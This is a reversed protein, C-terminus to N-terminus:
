NILTHPTLILMCKLKECYMHTFLLMTFMKMVSTHVKSRLKNFIEVYMLLYQYIRGINETWKLEDDIVQGLYRCSKVKKTIVGDLEVDFHVNSDSKHPIFVIYCTKDINLNLRNAIFCINLKNIAGNVTLNLLYIPWIDTMSPGSCLGRFLQVNINVIRDGESSDSEIPQFNV